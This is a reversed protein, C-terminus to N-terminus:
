TEVLAQTPTARAARRGPLASALAGAVVAVGVVALTQVGSMAFQPAGLAFQRALAVTGLWGFLVGVAIGAVAGVVALMIAEIVLMVRLQRRHLGLARLLASERTRELVSLGLTNGVGILAILVAVALLATAITLLTNLLGAYDATEELSGGITLSGVGVGNPDGTLQRVQALVDGARDVDPVSAWVEAQPANPDLRFLASRSTLLTADDPLNSLVVTLVARHGQHSLTLRQGPRVGLEKMTFPTVLVSDDAVADFGGRTAARASPRPGQLQFPGLDAHGDVTVPTAAVPEVTAVGPIGRIGDLVSAPVAGSDARVTLDVPFRVNLREIVTTKMSAAGVQLTVILGVALMLATCTAAARGPNRVSNSGALRAVPGLRGTLRGLAGLVAPLLNPTLALIGIAM